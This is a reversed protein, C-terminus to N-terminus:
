RDVNMFVWVRRWRNRDNTATVSLEVRETSLKLPVRYFTRWVNESTDYVFPQKRGIGDSLVMKAVDPSGQATIEVISGPAVLTDPGSVSIEPPLSDASAVVSGERIAASDPTPALTRSAPGPQSALVAETTQSSALAHESAHKGCSTAFVIVSFAVSALMSLRASRTLVRARAGDTRASTEREPAENAAARRRAEIHIRKMVLEWGATTPERLSSAGADQVSLGPPTPM